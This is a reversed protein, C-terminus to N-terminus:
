SKINEGNCNRHVAHSTEKHGMYGKEVLHHHDYTNAIRNYFQVKNECDEQFRQRDGVPQTIITWDIQILYCVIFLRM